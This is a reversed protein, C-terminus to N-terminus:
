SSFRDEDGSLSEPKAPDISSEAPPRIPKWLEYSRDERDEGM